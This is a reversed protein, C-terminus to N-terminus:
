GESVCCQWLKEPEDDKRKVAALLFSNSQTMRELLYDDIGKFSLKDGKPMLLTLTGSSDIRAPLCVDGSENLVHRSNIIVLVDNKITEIIDFVPIEILM